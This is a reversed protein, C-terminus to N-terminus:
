TESFFCLPPLTVYKAFDLGTGSREDPRGFLEIELEEFKPGVDGYEEKFEYIAASGDFAPRSETNTLVEYNTAEAAAWPSDSAGQPEGAQDQAPLAQSVETLDLSTSM